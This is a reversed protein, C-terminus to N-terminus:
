AETRRAPAPCILADLVLLALAMGLPWQFREAYQTFQYTGVVGGELGAIAQVVPEVNVGSASSKVFVGGGQRALESLMKENMRTLVIEGKADRKYGRPGTDSRTSDPIAGTRSEGPQTDRDEPIPIPAGETSGLGVVSMQIGQERMSRGVDTKFGPHDEGDTLLVVARYSHEAKELLRQATAVAAGLATGPAPSSGRAISSVFLSAADHDVTLPCYVFASGAFVVVGIRAGELRAIIAQAAEKAAELRNPQVDEALMSDSTDIVLVVDAGQQQARQVEVGVKPRAAAVVLLGLAATTLAGKLLRRRRHWRWQAAAYRPGLFARLAAERASAAYWVLAGALPLLWLLKLVDPNEWVLYNTM